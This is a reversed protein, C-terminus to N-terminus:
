RSILGSKSEPFYWCTIFYVTPRNVKPITTHVVQRKLLHKMIIIFVSVIPHKSLQRGTTYIIRFLRM